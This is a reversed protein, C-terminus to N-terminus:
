NFIKKLKVKTSKLNVWLSVSFPYFVWISFFVNQSVIIEWLCSRMFVLDTRTWSQIDSFRQYRFDVLCFFETHPHPQWKWLFFYKDGSTCCDSLKGQQVSLSLRGWATSITVAFWTHLMCTHVGTCLANTNFHFVKLCFLDFVVKM